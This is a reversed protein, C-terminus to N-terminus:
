GWAPASCEALTDVDDRTSGSGYTVNSTAIDDAVCFWGGNPSQQVFFIQDASVVGVGVTAQSADAIAAYTLSPEISALSGPTVRAFDGDDTAQTLAATVANRLNSQTARDQARLGAGRVLAYPDGDVFWQGGVARVPIQQDEGDLTVVVVATEATSAGIRATVDALQDSPSVFAGAPLQAVLADLGCAGGDAFAAALLEADVRNWLASMMREVPLFRPDDGCDFELAGAAGTTPVPAASTTSSPSVKVAAPESGGGCSALTLLLLSLATLLHARLKV